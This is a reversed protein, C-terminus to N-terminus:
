FQGHLKFEEFYTNTLNITQNLPLGIVVLEM